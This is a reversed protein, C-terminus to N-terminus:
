ISTLYSEASAYESDLRVDLISSKTFTTLPKWGNAPKAFVDMKSERNLESYAESGCM